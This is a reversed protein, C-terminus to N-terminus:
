EHPISWAAVYRDPQTARIGRGTLSLWGDVGLIAGVPEARFETQMMVAGVDGLQPTLTRSFGAAGLCEDMMAVLGGSRRVLRFCGMATRYRGRWRKAVDQGTEALVWRGVFGQACDHGTEYSFPERMAMSTYDMLRDALFDDV